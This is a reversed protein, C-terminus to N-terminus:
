PRILQAFGTVNIDRFMPTRPPLQSPTLFEADFFASRPPPTYVNVCCKWTGTAQRSFFLSVLSGMYNVQTGGPWAEIFRLFNHAGGDSGFNAFEGNGPHPFNLGKGSIVAMRWWTTAAQRGNPDHPANFSRLDNWNRSLLTVTDAIVAASRHPDGVPGFGGGACNATPAGCANFNGEVYVPNESAITLGQQGNSPLAGLGGNVLKLARRFFVARNSRAVGKNVLTGHVTSAATIDTAGWTGAGSAAVPVYPIRPVNGYTQLNTSANVDEGTNLNGDPVGAATTPNIVDEWGYEATEVNTGDKNNRRDSFYVVYGTVNMSGPGSAGITGAIWRRFNDVDFEIYHMVGGLYSNVGATAANDRRLGERPDYLTNPWYGTGAAPLNCHAPSAAANDKVRQVRIIANAHQTACAGPQPNAFNGDSINRGSVGLALIENTVNTWVGAADQRNILIFGGLLPTNVASRYGNNASGTSAALPYGGAAGGLAAVELSVPAGVVGPLATIEAASDSLLIRLTAMNFYRQGALTSPEAAGPPPRRIIDIPQAGGSVLPLDLRRVGTLTTRIYSNYTATSITNWNPNAASAPGDVVSGETMALNRCAATIAAPAAPCGPAKAMRVDGTYGAATTSAGNAFRQRVIQGVATVREALTLTGGTASLFVNANSHVRGGFSFNGGAHFNLDNESFLGFQFVPIAITQLTRTLSAESSDAVRGTVTATYPTALGVLGAFPGQQVTMVSALPQGGADTPFTVQYGNTGNPNQWTVGIAPPVTTLATLQATTPSYNTTFLDGLDATLKELGAHVAYFAQTRTSDLSRVRTDTIVLATFGATVAAMLLMVLLATLLAAGREDRTSRRLRRFIRM